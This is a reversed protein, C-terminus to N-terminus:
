PQDAFHAPRTLAAAATLPAFPAKVRGLVEACDVHSRRAYTHEAPGPDSCRDRGHSISTPVDSLRRSAPV